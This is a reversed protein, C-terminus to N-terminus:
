FSGHIAVGLRDSAVVPTLTTHEVREVGPATFYLFGAGAIALAGGVFLSTGGWRAVNQAHLWDAPHEAADRDSKADLTVALSGGWMGLGAGALAFALIRRTRGRDIEVVTTVPKPPPPVAIVVTKAEGDKLTIESQIPPKGEVRLEVTHRVNPDIEVRALDLDSLQHSDLFVSGGPPPPNAFTIKLTPVRVALSFTNTKAAEEYETMGTEASRFQAKRFWGLATATKGLRENCLGLNLLTGPANPDEKISTEFSACAAAFEGAELLQRGQEFALEAATPPKAEVPRETPVAGTPDPTQEPPPPQPQAQAQAGAGGCLVLIALVRRVVM